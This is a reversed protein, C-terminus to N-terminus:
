HLSPQHRELFQGVYETLRQKPLEKIRNFFIAINFNGDDEDETRVVVGDCEVNCTEKKVPLDLKIRVRTFPPIYKDIRCYTGLCSLNQTNTVFDYGNVVVNLPLQKDIRPHIRREKGTAIKM